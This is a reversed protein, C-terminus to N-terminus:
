MLGYFFSHSEPVTAAGGIETLRLVDNPNTPVEEVVMKGETRFGVQNVADAYTKADDYVLPGVSGMWFKKKAMLKVEDRNHWEM